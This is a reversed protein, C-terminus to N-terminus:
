LRLADFRKLYFHSRQLASKMIRAAPEVADLV